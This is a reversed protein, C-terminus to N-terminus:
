LTVGAARILEEEEAAVGRYVPGLSTAMAQITFSSLVM